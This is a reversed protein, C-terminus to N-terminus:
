RTRDLARAKARSLASEAPQGPAVPQHSPASPQRPADPAHSTPPAPATGAPRRWVPLRLNDIWANGAAFLSLRRGAIELVHLLLLALALPLVFDRVQRDRLRNANFVDDWALREIGATVRAIEHYRYRGFSCVGPGTWALGRTRKQSARASEM